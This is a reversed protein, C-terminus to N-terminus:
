YYHDCTGLQMYPHVYALWSLWANCLQLWNYFWKVTHIHIIYVYMCIHSAIKKYFCTVTNWVYVNSGVEAFDVNIKYKAM